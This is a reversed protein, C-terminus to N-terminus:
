VLVQKIVDAHLGASLLQLPSDCLHLRKKTEDKLFPRIASLIIQMKWNSNLIYIKKLVFKYREQVIETFMQLVSVHPMDIIDLEKCDFIWVWGATSAEDMHEVYDKVSDKTPRREKGKAPCTYYVGEGTSLRALFVFNHFQPDKECRKCPM